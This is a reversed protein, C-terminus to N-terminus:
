TGVASNWSWKGVDDVDAHVYAERGYGWNGWLSDIMEATILM